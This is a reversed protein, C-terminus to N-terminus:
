RFILINYVQIKLLGKCKKDINNLKNITKLNLNDIKNNYIKIKNVM